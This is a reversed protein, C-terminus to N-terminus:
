ENVIYVNFSIDNEIIEYYGDIDRNLIIRDNVGYTANSIATGDYSFTNVLVTSVDNTLYLKLNIYDDDTYLYYENLSQNYEVRYEESPVVAYQEKHNNIYIGGAILLVLLAIRFIRNNFVISLNATDSIKKVSDILKDIRGFVTRDYSHKRDEDTFEYHCHDCYKADLPNDKHCIPCNM